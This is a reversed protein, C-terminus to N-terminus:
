KTLQKIKEMKIAQVYCNGISNKVKDSKWAQKESKAEITTCLSYEKEGLFRIYLGYLM